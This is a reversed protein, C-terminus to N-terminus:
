AGGISVAMPAVGQGPVFIRAEFTARSQCADSLDPKATLDCGTDLSAITLGLPMGGPPM